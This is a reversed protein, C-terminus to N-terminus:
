LLPPIRGTIKYFEYGSHVYEIQRYGNYVVLILGGGNNEYVEFEKM